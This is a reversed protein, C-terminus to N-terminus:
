FVGGFIQYVKQIQIKAKGSVSHIFTPLNNLKELGWNSFRYFLLALKSYTVTPITLNIERVRDMADEKSTWKLKNWPDWSAKRKLDLM